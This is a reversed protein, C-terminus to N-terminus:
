RANSQLAEQLAAGFDEAEITVATSAGPQEKESRIARSVARRAAKTCVGYIDAGSLEGTRSALDSPSIGSAIPKNRLHVEFIDARAQEDPPGLEFIEDFRGPRLVAPDLMDLRNTAALVLVGKLEEIGDMETLFQSLVREAVHSDASGASRTPVLADIEDFFIIAPAAQKATRFIERVGRESEGVYKSLLEPGKVSIFNVRSENALAKAVLTKGCGPPGSLLIGRPPRIGATAFLHPYQLPWEVAEWLRQKVEAMGGVDRWHVDPVEVFIERTASPEVERLAELFDEMRVELQAIQAYPVRALSFDIEPLIHRLCIMASERCLAELDAGVFGHTIEALHGLDVDEALPMGRSHIALIEERGNRDPIPIAIERDFRGPFGDSDSVHIQKVQAQFDDKGGRL